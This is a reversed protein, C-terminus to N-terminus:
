PNKVMYNCTGGTGCSPSGTCSGASSLEMRACLIYTSVSTRNYYYQDASYLPDKPTGDLYTATGCTISGYIAVPYSNADAYCMELASRIQELDAKRKGDRATKKAGQYSVMALGLVVAVITMAILLEILTFGKNKRIKM